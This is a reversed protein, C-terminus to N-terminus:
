QKLESLTRPLGAKWLSGSLGEEGLWKVLKRRLALLKNLDQGTAIGM